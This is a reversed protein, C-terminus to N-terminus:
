VEKTSQYLHLICSSESLVTIISCRKMFWLQTNVDERPEVKRKELLEVSSEKQSKVAVPAHHAIQGCAVKYDWTM